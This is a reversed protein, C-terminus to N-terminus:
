HGGEEITWIRNIHMYFNVILAAKILAVIVLPAVNSSFPPVEDATGIVYEVGTLVFLLVAITASLAYAGMSGRESAENEEVEDAYFDFDSM